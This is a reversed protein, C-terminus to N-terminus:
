AGEGGRQLSRVMRRAATNLRDVLSSGAPDVDDLTRKEAGLDAAAAAVNEELHAVNSTGPIPLMM